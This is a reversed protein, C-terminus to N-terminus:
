LYGLTRCAQQLEEPIESPNPLPGPPHIIGSKIKGTWDGLGRRFDGTHGHNSYQLMDPEWEIGLEACLGRIVREPELTLQEYSITPGPLAARAEGWASLYNNVRAYHDAMALNPSAKALSEVIRLPHRKLFVYRARPWSKDIRKWLTTNAPTKDVIISKGTRVLQLHLLRDWLLDALDEKTVDLKKWAEEGYWNSFSAQLTRLHMEHPACVQSHSDLIMRLLTSGSRESSYIFIPSPVLRDAADVYTGRARQAPIVRRRLARRVRLAARRASSPDALPGPGM